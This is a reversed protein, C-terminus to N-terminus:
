IPESHVTRGVFKLSILEVRIRGLSNKKFINVQNLSVKSHCIFYCFQCTVTSVSTQDKEITSNSSSSVSNVSTDALDDGKQEISHEKFFTDNYIKQKVSVFFPICGGTWWCCNKTARGTKEPFKGRNEWHRGKFFM